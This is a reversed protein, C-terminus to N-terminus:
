EQMADILCVCGGPVPCALEPRRRIVPPRFPKGSGVRVTGGGSTELEAEGTRDQLLDKLHLWWPGDKMRCPVVFEARGTIEQQVLV